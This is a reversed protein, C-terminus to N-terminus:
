DSRSIPFPDTREPQIPDNSRSRALGGVGRGVLDLALAPLRDFRGESYRYEVILNRGEMYGAAKLRWNPDQLWRRIPSKLFGVAPM